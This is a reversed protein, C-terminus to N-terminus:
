PRWGHFSFHWKGWPTGKCTVRLNANANVLIWERTSRLLLGLNHGQDGWLWLTYGAIYVKAKLERCPRSAHADIITISRITYTRSFYVLVAQQFLPKTANTMRPQHWGHPPVHIKCACMVHNLFNMQLKIPLMLRPFEAMGLHPLDLDM